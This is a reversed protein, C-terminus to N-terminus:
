RTSTTAASTPAPKGEHQDEAVVALTRLSTAASEAVLLKDAGERPLPAHPNQTPLGPSLIYIRRYHNTNLHFYRWECHTQRVAPQV